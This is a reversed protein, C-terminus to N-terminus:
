FIGHEDTRVSESRDTSRRFRDVPHDLPHIGDIGCKGRDVANRIEIPQVELDRFRHELGHLARTELVLGEELAEVHAERITVEGGESVPLSGPATILRPPREKSATTTRAGRGDLECERSHVRVDVVVERKGQDGSRAARRNAHSCASNNHAKASLGRM